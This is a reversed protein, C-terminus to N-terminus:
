EDQVIRYLNTAKGSVTAKRATYIGKAVAETLVLDAQRAGIGAREAFEKRTFEGPYRAFRAVGLVDAAQDIAALTEPDLDIIVEAM